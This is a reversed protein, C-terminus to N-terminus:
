RSHKRSTEYKEGYKEKLVKDRFLKRKNTNILRKRKESPKEYYLRSKVESIVGGKESIRKLRKLANEISEKPRVKVGNM